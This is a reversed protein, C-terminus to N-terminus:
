ECQQYGFVEFRLSVYGHWKTPIIRLYRACVSEPFVITVVSHSDFNAAFTQRFFIFLFSFLTMLSKFSALILFFAFHFIEILLVPYLITFLTPWRKGLVFKEKDFRGSINFTESWYTYVICINLRSISFLFLSLAHFILLPHLALVACPVFFPPM